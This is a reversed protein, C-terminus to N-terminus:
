DNWGNATIDLDAVFWSLGTDVAGASGEQGLGLNRALLPNQFGFSLGAEYYDSLSIYPFTGQGETHNQRFFTTYDFLLTGPDLPVADNYTRVEPYIRYRTFPSTAVIEVRYRYRFVTNHPLRSSGPVTRVGPSWQLYPFAQAGGDQNYETRVFPNWDTADAILGLPIAQFGGIVNYQYPHNHVSTNGANLIFM